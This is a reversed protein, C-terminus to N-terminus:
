CHRRPSSRACFLFTSQFNTHSTLLPLSLRRVAAAACECGTPPLLTEQSGTPHSTQPCDPRSSLASKQRPAAVCQVLVGPLLFSFLFRRLIISSGRDLRRRRAGGGQGATRVGEGRRRRKAEDGGTLHFSSRPPPSVRAAFAAGPPPPEGNTPTSFAMGGTCPLSSPHRPCAAQQMGVVVVVISPALNKERSSSSPSPFRIRREKERERGGAEKGGEKGCHSFCFDGQGRRRRWRARKRRWPRRRRGRELLLSFAAAERQSRRPRWLFVAASTRPRM